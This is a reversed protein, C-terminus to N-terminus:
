AIPHYNGVHMFGDLWHHLRTAKNYNKEKYKTRKQLISFSGQDM